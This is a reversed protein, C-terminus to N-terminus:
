PKNRSLVEVFLPKRRVEGSAHEPGSVFFSLKSSGLADGVTISGLSLLTIAVPELPQSM